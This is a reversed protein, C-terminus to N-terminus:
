AATPRPKRLRRAIVRVIIYVPVLVLLLLPVVAIGLWIVVNALGQLSRVLAEFAEKVVGQPKWGPVEIPQAAVDPLLEVTIASLAAAESYYKMQGKIQEIQQRYYTLQNFVALVDETKTARDMISQLQAEAAELNRLQSDLDAYEATVDQGSINETKVEAALGRIQDLASDLSEAPVRVTITARMLAKGEPNYESSEYVYSSVVFGGLSNALSAIHEAAEAPAAVEMVLNANRIVLREAAAKPNGAADYAEMAPAATGMPAMTPAPAAPPMGGGAYGAAGDREGSTEGSSRPAVAPAASCAALALATILLLLAARKALM